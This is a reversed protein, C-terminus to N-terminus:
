AQRRVPREALAKSIGSVVDVAVESLRKNLTIALARGYFFAQLIDRSVADGSGSTSPGAGKSTGRSSSAGNNSAADPACAPPNHVLCPCAHPPDLRRARATITRM